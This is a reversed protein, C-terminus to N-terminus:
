VKVAPFKADKSDQAITGDHVMNHEVYHADANAEAYKGDQIPTGVQEGCYYGNAAVMEGATNKVDEYKPHAM